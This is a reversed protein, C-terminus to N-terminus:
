MKIVPLKRLRGRVSYVPLTRVGCGVSNDMKQSNTSFKASSGDHTYILCKNFSFQAFEGKFKRMKDEVPTGNVSM